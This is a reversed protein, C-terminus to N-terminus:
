FNVTVTKKHGSKFDKCYKTGDIELYGGHWGDGYSCKCDLAYEGFPLCCEETYEKRTGYVQKSTCTGLSYSNEYGWNKTVIKINTCKKCQDPCLAAAAPISCNAVACYPAYDCTPPASTTSPNTGNGNDGKLAKITAGVDILGSTSVYQAYEAKVRVNEEIVERV